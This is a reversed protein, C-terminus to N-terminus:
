IMMKMEAPQNCAQGTINMDVTVVPIDQRKTAQSVYFKGSDVAIYTKTNWCLAVKLDKDAWLAFVNCLTMRNNYEITGTGKDM